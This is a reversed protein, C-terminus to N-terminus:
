NLFLQFTTYFNSDGKTKVLVSVYIIDVTFSWYFINVCFNIQAVYRESYVFSQLESVVSSEVSAMMAQFNHEGFVQQCQRLSDRVFEALQVTYVPDKSNLQPFFSNILLRPEKVVGFSLNSGGFKFKTEWCHQVFCTGLYHKTLLAM